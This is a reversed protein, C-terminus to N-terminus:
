PGTGPLGSSTVPVTDPPVTEMVALTPAFVSVKEAVMLQQPNPVPLDRLVVANLM